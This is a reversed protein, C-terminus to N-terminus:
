KLLFVMAPRSFENNELLKYKEVVLLLIIQKKKNKIENKIKKKILQSISDSIIKKNLTEGNKLKEACREGMTLKISRLNKLKNYITCEKKIGIEFLAKIRENNM